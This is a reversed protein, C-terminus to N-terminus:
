CIGMKKISVRPNAGCRNACELKYENHYTTQDSGCVPNYQSLTLCGSMCSYFARSRSVVPPPVSAEEPPRRSTTSEKAPRVPDEYPAVNNTLLSSGTGTRGPHPNRAVYRGKFTTPSRNLWPSQRKVRGVVIEGRVPESLAVLLLLLVAVSLGGGDEPGDRGCDPYM